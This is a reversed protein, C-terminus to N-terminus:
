AILLAAAAALLLHLALKFLHIQRLRFVTVFVLSLGLRRLTRLAAFLQLHHVSQLFEGPALLVEIIPELFELGGQLFRARFLLAATQGFHPAFPPTGGRWCFFM